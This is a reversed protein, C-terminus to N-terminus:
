GEDRERERERISPHVLFGRVHDKAEPQDLPQPVAGQSRVHPIIESSGEEEARAKVQRPRLELLGNAVPAPIPWHALQGLLHSLSCTKHVGSANHMPRARIGKERGGNGKGVVCVCVCM